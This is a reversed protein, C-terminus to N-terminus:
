YDFSKIANLKEDTMQFSYPNNAFVNERIQKSVKEVEAIIEADNRYEKKVPFQLIYRDGEKTMYIEATGGAFAGPLRRDKLIPYGPDIKAVVAM